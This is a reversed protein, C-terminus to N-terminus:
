AEAGELVEAKTPRKFFGFAEDRDSREVTATFRVRVEHDKILEPYGEECGKEDVLELMRDDIAAPLTGWVLFGRDDKVTAVCRTGFGTDKWDIKVIRGVVEHRGEIVPTKAAAEEAEKALAAAAAETQKDTLGNTAAKAAVDVVFGNRGKYAALGAAVEPNAAAWEAQAARAAAQALEAEAQRKAERRIAAKVNALERRVTRTTGKMGNCDFCIGNHVREFGRIYGTGGCKGCAIFVEADPDAAELVALRQQYTAGIRDYDIRRAKMWAAPDSAEEGCVECEYLPGREADDQAVYLRDFGRPAMPADHVGLTLKGGENWGCAPCCCPAGEALRPKEIKTPYTM